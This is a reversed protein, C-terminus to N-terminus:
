SGVALSMLAFQWGGDLEPSGPTQSVPTIDGIGIKRCGFSVLQKQFEEENENPRFRM